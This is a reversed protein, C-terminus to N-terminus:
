QLILRRSLVIVLARYINLIYHKHLFASRFEKWATATAAKAKISFRTLNSMIIENVEDLM